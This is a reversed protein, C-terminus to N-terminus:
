RPLFDTALPRTFEAEMKKYKGIVSRALADASNELDTCNGQPALSQLSSKVDLAADIGAKGHKCHHARLSDSYQNWQDTLTRNRTYLQGPWLPLHYDVQVNTRVNRISCGLAGRRTDFMWNINWQTNGIGGYPVANRLSTLLERSTNGSVISNTEKEVFQPRLSLQQLSFEHNCVTNPVAVGQKAVAPNQEVPVACASVGSISAALLFRNINVKSLDINGAKKRALKIRALKKRALIIRPM